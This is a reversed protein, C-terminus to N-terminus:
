TCLYSPSVLQEAFKTVRALSRDMQTIMRELLARRSRLDFELDRLSSTTEEWESSNAKTDDVRQLARNNDAHPPLDKRPDPDRPPADMTQHAPPMGARNLSMSYYNSYHTQLVFLPLNIITKM